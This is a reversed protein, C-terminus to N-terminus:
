PRLTGIELSTERRVGQREYEIRITQGPHWDAAPRSGHDVPQGDISIIQDGSRLGAREAPSGAEVAATQGDSGILLRRDGNVLGAIVRTSDLYRLGVWPRDILGAQIVTKLAPELGDALWLKQDDALWGVVEGRDTLVLGGSGTRVDRDLMWWQDARDISQWVPGDPSALRREVVVPKPWQAIAVWVRQGPVLRDASALQAPAQSLGPMKVLTYPSAPDIQQSEPILIDGLGTALARSAGVPWLWNPVAVWGSSSLAPSVGRVRDAAVLDGGPPEIVYLLESLRDALGAPIEVSAEGAREIVTKTTQSPLWRVAPHDPYTRVVWGVAATGATVMLLSVVTVFLAVRGWPFRVPQVFQGSSPAADALRAKPSTPAPHVVM